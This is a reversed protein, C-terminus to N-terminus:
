LVRSPSILGNPTSSWTLYRPRCNVHFPRAFGLCVPFSSAMSLSSLSAGSFGNWLSAMRLSKAIGFSRWSSTRPPACLFVSVVRSRITRVATLLQIRSGFSVGSPNRCAGMLAPPRPMGLRDVEMGNISRLLSSFSRFPLPSIM